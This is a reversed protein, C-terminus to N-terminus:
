LRRPGVARPGRAPRPGARPPRRAFGRAPPLIRSIRTATGPGLLPPGKATAAKATAATATAVTAPAATGGAAMRATVRISVRHCTVATATAAGPATATM